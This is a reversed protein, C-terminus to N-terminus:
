EPDSCADLAVSLAHTYALLEINEKMIATVQNYLGAPIPQDTIYKPPDPRKVKCKIAIPVKVEQTEIVTRPECTACGAILCCLILLFRM